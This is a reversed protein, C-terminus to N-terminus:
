GQRRAVPDVGRPDTKRIERWPLSHSLRDVGSVWRMPLPERFPERLTVDHVLAPGGYM